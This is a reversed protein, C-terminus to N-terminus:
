DPPRVFGVTYPAIARAVALLRRDSHRAGVLQLGIPLGGRSLALPMAIAPAGVLNFPTLYRGLSWYGVPTGDVDLDSGTAAHPFAPIMAVPCLLADVEALLHDWASVFERRQELLYLWDALLPGPRETEGDAVERLMNVMAARIRGQSRFDVDPLAEAVSAGDRDLRAALDAVAAAIEKSIPADPFATACALRLGKVDPTPLPGEHLRLREATVSLGLELDDLNRAMPGITTALPLAPPRGPLESIHGASSVIGATPMLGYVGCFHAPLRVSGALDSGIELPTM